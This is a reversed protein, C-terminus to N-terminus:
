KKDREILMADAYEYAGRMLASRILMADKAQDSGTAQSDMYRAPTKSIMAAAFEIAAFDRLSMGSIEQDYGRPFVPPDNREAM